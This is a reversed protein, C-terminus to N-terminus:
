NDKIMEDILSSQELNEKSLQKIVKAQQEIMEQQQNLLEFLAANKDNVKM